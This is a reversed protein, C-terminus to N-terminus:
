KELDIESDWVENELIECKWIRVLMSLDSEVDGEEAADGHEADGERGDGREGVFVRSVRDDV